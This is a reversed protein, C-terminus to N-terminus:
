AVEIEISASAPGAGAKGVARVDITYVKRNINRAYGNFNRLPVTAMADASGTSTWDTQTGFFYSTHGAILNRRVRYEYYLIDPVATWAINAATDTNSVRRLNQPAVPPDPEPIIPDIVEPKPPPIDKQQEGITAPISIGDVYTEPPEPQTDSAPSVVIGNRTGFAARRKRELGDGKTGEVQTSM